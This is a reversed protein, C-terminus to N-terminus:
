FTVLLTIFVFLVLYRPRLVTREIQNVIYGLQRNKKDAGQSIGRLVLHDELWHMLAATWQTLKGAL